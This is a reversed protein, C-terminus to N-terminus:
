SMKGGSPKSGNSKKSKGSAVVSVPRAQNLVGKGLQDSKVNQNNIGTGNVSSLGKMDAM